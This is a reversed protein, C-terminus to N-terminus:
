ALTLADSSSGILPLPCALAFFIRDRFKGTPKRSTGSSWNPLRACSKVESGLITSCTNSNYTTSYVCYLWNKGPEPNISLSCKMWNHKYLMYESRSGSCGKTNSRLVAM